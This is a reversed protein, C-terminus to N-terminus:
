AIKFHEISQGANVARQLWDPLVGAGNWTHGQADKFRVTKKSIEVSKKPIFCGAAELQEFSIGHRAIASRAWLIADARARHATAASSESFPMASTATMGTPIALPM